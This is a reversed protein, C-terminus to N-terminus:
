RTATLIRGVLKDSPFNALVYTNRGDEVHVTIQETAGKPGTGSAPTLSLEHTGVPLHIRLVQITDPLIGWCRTDATETAEWLVGAADMAFNVFSNGAVETTEKATYVVAKKVVRRAVARAVIRDHNAQSEAIALATVDTLTETDGLTEGNIGVRIRDIRNPSRVVCPVKIPAITPPLSHKGTASLIRDAILLANSTPQENMVEKHPGRGM